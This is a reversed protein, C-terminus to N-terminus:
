KCVGRAISDSEDQEKCRIDDPNTQDCLWGSMKKHIECDQMNQFKASKFCEEYMENCVLYDIPYVVKIYLGYASLAFLLILVFSILIKKSTFIKKM